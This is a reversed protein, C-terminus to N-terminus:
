IKVEIHFETRRKIRLTEKTLWSKLTKDVNFNNKNSYADIHVQNDSQPTAPIQKLCSAYQQMHLYVLYKFKMILFYAIFLVLRVNELMSLDRKLLYEAHIQFNTMLKYMIENGTESTM